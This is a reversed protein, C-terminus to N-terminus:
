LTRLYLCAPKPLTVPYLNSAPASPDQPLPPNKRYKCHTNFLTSGCVGSDLAQPGEPKLAASTAQGRGRSGRVEMEM